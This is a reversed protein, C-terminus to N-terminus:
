DWWLYIIKSAEMERALDANTGSGQSVVDPAIKEVEDALAKWDKVGGTVKLSVWDGSVGLLRTDYRSAFSQIIAIVSDNSIDYNAGDTGILKIIRALSTDKVVAIDDLQGDIGFNNDAVFISYGRKRFSESLDNVLPESAATSTHVMIGDLFGSPEIQVKGGPGYIKGRTFYLRSLNSRSASKLEKAISEEIQFSDCLARESASIEPSFASPKELKCGLAFLCCIAPIFRTAKM